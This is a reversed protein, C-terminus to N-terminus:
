QNDSWMRYVVEWRGDPKRHLLDFYKTAFQHAEGGAKPIRQGSLTGRYVVWDQGLFRIEDESIREPRVTYTAEAQSHRLWEAISARGAVPPKNPPLVRGDEAYFSAYREPTQAAAAFWEGFFARVSATDASTQGALDPSFHLGAAM